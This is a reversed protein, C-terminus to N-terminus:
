MSDVGIEIVVGSRLVIRAQAMCNNTPRVDQVFLERASVRPPKVVKDTKMNKFWNDVSSISLGLTKAVASPRLGFRKLGVVKAILGKPYLFHKPLKGEANKLPRQFSAVETKIEQIRLEAEGTESNYGKLRRM